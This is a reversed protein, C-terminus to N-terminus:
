FVAYSFKGSTGKLFIKLNEIDFCFHNGFIKQYFLFALGGLINTRTVLFDPAWILYGKKIHSLGAPERLLFATISEYLCM